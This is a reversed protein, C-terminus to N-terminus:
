EAAAAPVRVRLREIVAVVNWWCAIWARFLRLFLATPTERQLPRIKFVVDKGFEFRPVKM